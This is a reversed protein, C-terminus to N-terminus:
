EIEIREIYEIYQYRDDDGSPELCRSDFVDM